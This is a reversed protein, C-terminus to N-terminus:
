EDDVLRPTSIPRLDDVVVVRPEDVVTIRYPEAPSLTRVVGDADTTGITRSDGDGVSKTVTVDPAPDGTEEDLVTVTVPGGAYSREVTVNFGDGAESARETDPFASLNIRQHEVFVQETGGSVFARLLGYEHPITIRQVAGAGFADPERLAATEPYAATTVNIAEDNSIAGGGRGWRDNRFTERVYEGDVITALTVSSPTSEVYIEAASRDGRATSLALDRVPGNYVQLAVQLEDLRTPSSFGDTEEALADIAELRGDYERATASIRVLEDLLERDSLNGSAHAQFAKSQRSHLSVENREVRSLAALILRQRETSTQANEIRDVIAETEVAAGADAVSFSLAPGLNAGRFGSGRRSDADTPASLTRFTLNSEDIQSPGTQPRPPDIPGDANPRVPDLAISDPAEVAAPSESVAAAPSMTGAVPVVLLLVAVFVSLARM